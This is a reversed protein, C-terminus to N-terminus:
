RAGRKAAPFTVRWRRAELNEYPACAQLARLAAREASLTPPDAAAGVTRAAKPEGLIRGDAAIEVVLVASRPSAQRWCPTVRRWLDGTPAPSPRQGVMPLSAAAYLDIGDAAEGPGLGADARSSGATQGGPSASAPAAASPTSAASPASAASTLDTRALLADLRAGSPSPDQPSPPAPRSATPRPAALDRAAAPAAGGSAGAVLTVQVSDRLTVTQTMPRALLVLALVVAHGGLAALAAVASFRADDTQPEPSGPM